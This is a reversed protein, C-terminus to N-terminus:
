NKFSADLYYIPRGEKFYQQEFDTMVNSIPNEEHHLDLSVRDFVYWYKSLSELSYAFFGKNDTKLIIHKNKKFIRDYLKLYSEHTFRKRENVPKPWPESFTLYITDIEKGFFEIINQADACILKLNPINQNSLRKVATAMQSEDLELGIYNIKPNQKAMNIIFEGRGMGLELKIPNNNNFLEHWKNKYEKPNNIVFNSREIIKDADKVKKYEM